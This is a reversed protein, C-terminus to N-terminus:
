RTCILICKKEYFNWILTLTPMLATYAQKICHHQRQQIRANLWLCRVAIRVKRKDTHKLCPIVIDDRLCAIPIWGVEASSTTLSFM